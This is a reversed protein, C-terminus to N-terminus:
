EPKESPRNVYRQHLERILRDRLAAQELHEGFEQRLQETERRGLRDEGRLQGISKRTQRATDQLGRIDRGQEVQLDMILRVDDHIADWRDSAPSSRNNISQETKSSSKAAAAAAGAAQEATSKAEKTTQGLEALKGRLALWAPVIIGATALVQVIIQTWNM